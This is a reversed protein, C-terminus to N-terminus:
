YFLSSVLNKRKVIRTKVAFSEKADSTVQELNERNISTYQLIRRPIFCGDGLMHGLLRIKAETNLLEPRIKTDIPLDRPIAIYDNIKIVEM